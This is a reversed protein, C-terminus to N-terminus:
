LSNKKYFFSVVLHLLQSNNVVVNSHFLKWTEVKPEVQTKMLDKFSFSDVDESYRKEPGRRKDIMQIGFRCGDSTSMKFIIDPFKPGSSGFVKVTLEALKEGKINKLVGREYLQKTNWKFKMGQLESHERGQVKKVASKLNGFTSKHVPSFDRAKQFDRITHDIHKKLRSLEIDLSRNMESIATLTDKTICIEQTVYDIAYDPNKITNGIDNLFNQLKNDSSCFTGTSELEHVKKLTVNKLTFYELPKLKQIMPDTRIKPNQQLLKAFNPEDQPLITSISLDYLNTDVDEIQMMYVFARKVQDYIKRMKDDSVLFRYASADLELTIRGSKPFSTIDLDRRLIDHLIDTEPFEDSYEEFKSSIELVKETLLELKPSPSVMDLYILRDGEQEYEPDVLVNYLVDKVHPKIENAYQNLPDLYGGFDKMEFVTNLSKILIDIKRNSQINADKYGYYERNVLYESVFVNVLISSIARLSDIEETNKDAAFCFIKTCLYRVEVPISHVKRTYIEAVMEIAHWLCRLNEIFKNKTSTDDVPSTHQPPSFGHIERYIKYPDSEFDVAPDTLYDLIPVVICFLEPYERRLFDEFINQWFQSRNDLFNRINSADNIANQLMECVFRTFYTRERENMRQNVTGFTMYVNKAVFEPEKSYLLKWYSPDVQLMYFLKEYKSYKSKPIKSDSISLEQDRNILLGFKELVGNMDLQQRINKLLREKKMNESDLSAQCSELDNQVEEITATGNLLYVFKKVAWLSPNPCDLLELYASRQLSKRIWSQIMIVSRVNRQYYSSNQNLSQRVLAGRSFAQFVELNNYEVIDDVLDLTYRVLIGRVLAQLDHVTESLHNVPAFLSNIENRVFKGQLCASLQIINSNEEELSHISSTLCSRTRTGRILSQLSTIKEKHKDDIAFLVANGSNRAAGGRIIALLSMISKKAGNLESNLVMLKRRVQFARICSQLKILPPHSTEIDSLEKKVKTKLLKSRCFAQLEEVIYSHKSLTFKLSDYKYRIRNGKIRSQIEKVHPVDIKARRIPLCISSLQRFKYGRLCAQFKAIDREFLSLLRKQIYLNFRINVGRCINQLQVVKELFQEETMRERRMPSYHSPSYKFTQYYDLDEERARSRRTYFETDYTLYKSITPSYYSLSKNKIPSYELSPTSGLLSPEIPTFLRKETTVDLTSMTLTKYAQPPSPSTHSPTPSDVNIINKKPTTLIEETSIKPREYENFDKILGSRKENSEKPSASVANSNTGLSKFDRIRPWARKCTAIEEKTFSIQGSVNTLPPTKGPWKKNIMSILIHLTEFVQPFNKKNYLDQLEFRFSDPVGVHEVLGFFANINQTHKFQLKTGAPFISTALDPNIRQTLMALFVGNRLADGVCLEIETPLAEEIVAEIWTKVESVRCLFEYYKLEIQSYNSLNVTCKGVLKKPPSPKAKPVTSDAKSLLFPSHNISAKTKFGIPSTLNSSSNLKSSSLPRLPPVVDSGLNEVYRSLFSNNNSSKSPSGSLATM